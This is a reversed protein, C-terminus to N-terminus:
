YDTGTRDHSVLVGKENFIPYQPDGAYGTKNSAYAELCHVIGNGASLVRTSNVQWAVEPDQPCHSTIESRFTWQDSGLVTGGGRPFESPSTVASGNRNTATSQIVDEFIYWRGGYYHVVEQWVKYTSYNSYSYTSFCHFNVRKLDPPPM